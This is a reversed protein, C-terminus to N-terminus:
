RVFHNKALFDAIKKSIFLVGSPSPHIYDDSRILYQKTNGSFDLSPTFIDIYPIDHTKAYNLHNKIYSDREQAWQQRTKIDLQPETTKAYTQKNTGITGVFILKEKGSTTAVLAVLDDLIETQKKIGEEKYESLPNHGFSEILLYDFDINLIPAFDRGGHHTTQALREKASLISTSGYGYNLVEFTKDPYYQNLYGKLEDSNGLTETMSDGLIVFTYDHPYKIKGSETAPRSAEESLRRFPPPPKLFHKEIQDPLYKVAFFAAIFFLVLGFLFFKPLQKKRM